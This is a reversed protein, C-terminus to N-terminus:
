SQQILRLANRIIRYYGAINTGSHKEISIPKGLVDKAEVVVTPVISVNYKQALGTPDDKIDVCFWNAQLFEDRLDQLTHKIAKCPACTESSFQYVSVSM